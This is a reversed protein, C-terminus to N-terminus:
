LTSCPTTMPRAPSVQMWPHMLLDCVSPRCAPDRQLCVSLFSRANGSLGVSLTSMDGSLIAQMYPVQKCSQARWANPM